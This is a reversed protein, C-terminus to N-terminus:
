KKILEEVTVGHMGNIRLVYLGRPLDSVYLTSSKGSIKSRLLEQGLSNFLRAEAEDQDDPLSVLIYDTFPNPLVMIKKGVQTEGLSSPWTVKLECAVQEAVGYIEDGPQNAYIMCTGYGTIHVKGDVITAVAPDSSLYSVPLGSSAVAVPEFDADSLMKDPIPDFSITQNELEIVHGWFEVEAVNGWGGNPAVYRLYRYDQFVSVDLQSLTGVAPTTGIATVTVADSFDLTTAVQFTGNLMRGAHASRPAYRVRTLLARANRGLDLGVWAGDEVNADFYTGLNGDMAAEKTTSLNDNYSGPTGIVTGTFKVPASIKIQVPTSEEGQGLVNVGAIKYYYTTGIVIPKDTYSLGSLTALDEYGEAESLSRKLVYSDAEDAPDWSLVVNSNGPLAVLGEPAQPLALSLTQVCTQASNSSEGAFNVAKLKYYYATNALLNHDAYSTGTWAPEIIAYPGEESAARRIQYSLAGPVAEWSLELRSSNLANGILNEPAAPAETGGGTLTVHDVRVTTIMEANSSGSCLYMGAYYTEPMPITVSGVEFWNIGDRSQYGTFINESRELKFWTPAWTHTNGKTWKASSGATSRPAFWTYRFGNDALGISAMRATGRLSERMVLGFRDANYGALEADLLRVILSSNGTVETYLYGHADSSGGFSTGTGKILFSRHDLDSYVATGAAPVTGIDAMIWGAPMAANGPVPTASVVPSYGSIGSNNKLAIRYYYTVGGVVSEDTYETSTNYSWSGISTYPGDYHASRQIISGNAVHGAPTNWSLRVKSIGAEATVNVPAEPVPITYFPSNEADLTFTLASYGTYEGAVPYVGKLNVFAKTYPAELGKRVVYHNYIIEYAPSESIRYSNLTAPFYFNNNVCDNYPVWEVPNNLGYKCLYEYGALLRNDAYSFLDVGQNYASQCLEAASGPGIEAHPLDRGMEAIQGSPQCVMEMIGGGGIGNKYYEVAEDFLDQNDCLIGIFLICSNAPGDWGSWSGCKGVFDRCAPYFYNLCMEKFRNFDEAAWGPYIRAIEAAQVLVMIPLQFLEGSVVTKISNSYANLIRVACKAYSEDGTIYWRLINYYAATGDRQARQRTGDSGGVTASAGATYTNQAKSDKSMQNYGEIWPSEKASVKAKMRELDALTHVGGPHIFQAKIAPCVCLLMCLFTIRGLFTIIQKM